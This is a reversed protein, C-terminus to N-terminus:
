AASAVTANNRRRARLLTTAADGLAQRLDHDSADPHQVIAAQMGGFAMAVRVQGAFDLDEGGLLTQLRTQRSEARDAIIPHSLIALDRSIYVILARHELLYDLYADLFMRRRAPTNPGSEHEDLLVDFDSLAPNILAGALDDKSKFHYYLAAKTVGLRDAIQQLTTGESGQASFLELTVQLIRTRTDDAVAASM